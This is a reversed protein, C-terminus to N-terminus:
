RLRKSFLLESVGPLVFDALAGVQTYGQDRYFKHGRTNFDSVLLFMFKTKPRFLAEGAQLLEAGVGRSQVTPDVAILRLYPSRAFAGREIFWAFGCLQSGEFAGLVVDGHSVAYLLDRGAAESDYGYRDRWLPNKGVINGAAECESMTLARVNM